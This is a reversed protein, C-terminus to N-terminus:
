HFGCDESFSLIWINMLPSAPSRLGEKLFVFLMEKVFRVFKTRSTWSICSTSGHHPSCLRCGLGLGLADTM